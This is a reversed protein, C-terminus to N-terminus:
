IWLWGFVGGMVLGYVLSDAAHLMWSKWPKGFWISDAMGGMAYSMFGVTGVVRFVALYEAGPVLAHYAVYAVFISIVINSILSQVMMPGMAGDSPPMVTVVARPGRQLKAKFEPTGMAQQTAVFPIMYMGPTANGARIADAVADENSLGVFDKKHHPM